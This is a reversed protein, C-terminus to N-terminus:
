YIIKIELEEILEDDIDRFSNTTYIKKFYKRLEETGYSFIGHTVFLYLDGANKNKLEKAAYIFSSGGDAIDDCIICPINNLDDCFSEFGEIKGNSVNRKKHCQITDFNTWGHSHLFKGLNDIKKSSGADISILHFKNKMNQGM